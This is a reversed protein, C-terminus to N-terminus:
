LRELKARECALLSRLVDLRTQRLNFLTICNEATMYEAQLAKMRDRYLTSARARHEISTASGEPDGTLIAQFAEGLATKKRDGIFEQCQRAKAYAEGDADMEDLLRELRRQLEAITSYDAEYRRSSPPPAHLSM